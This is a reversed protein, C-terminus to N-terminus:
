NKREVVLKALARLADASSGFGSLSDLAQAQLEKAQNQAYDLGM